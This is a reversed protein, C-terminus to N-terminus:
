GSLDGDGILYRIVDVADIILSVGAILLYVHIYKGYLSAAGIQKRQYLVWAYVPTWVLLHALGLLRVYGFNAYLWNMVVAAGFFSFIILIPVPRVRWGHEERGVVFIIALLHSLILLGVWSQLWLPESAIADGLTAPSDNM